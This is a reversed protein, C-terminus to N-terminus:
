LARQIKFGIQTVILPNTQAAIIVFCLFHLNVKLYVIESLGLLFTRMPGSTMALGSRSKGTFGCQHQSPDTPFTVVQSITFNFLEENLNHSFPDTKICCEDNM